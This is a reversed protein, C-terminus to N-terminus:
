SAGKLALTTLTAADIVPPPELRTGDILTIENCLYAVALVHKCGAVEDFAPCTCSPRPVRVVYTNHANSASPVLWTDDAVRLFLRHKSKALDLGRQSRPPM